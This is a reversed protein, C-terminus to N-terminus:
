RGRLRRTRADVHEAAGTADARPLDSTPRTWAAWRHERPMFGNPSAHQYVYDFGAQVLLRRVHWPYLPRVPANFFHRYLRRTYSTRKWTFGFLSTMAENVATAAALKWKSAPASGAKDPQTLRALPNAGNTTLILLGGAVLAHALNALVQEPREFHLLTELLFAVDFAGAEFTDRELDAEVFDIREAVGARAAVARALGLMETSVDAAVVSDAGNLAAAIAARGRGTAADLVRKGAPEAIAIAEELQGRYWDRFAPDDDAFPDWWRAVTGSRQFYDAAWSTGSDDPRL